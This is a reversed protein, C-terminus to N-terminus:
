VRKRTSDKKETTILHTILKKENMLVQNFKTIQHDHHHISASALQDVDPVCLHIFVIIIIIIIM